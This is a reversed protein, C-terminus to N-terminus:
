TLIFRKAECKGDNLEKLVEGKMIGSVYTEGVVEYDGAERGRLIFPVHSGFLVVVNDGTEAGAPALGMYGKKTIFFRRGLAYKELQFDADREELQPIISPSEGYAQFALERLRATEEKDPSLLSHEWKYRRSEATERLVKKDFQCRSQWYPDPVTSPLSFPRHYLDYPQLSWMDALRQFSVRLEQLEKDSSAMPPLASSLVAEFTSRSAIGALDGSRSKLIEQREALEAQRPNRFTVPPEGIIWDKAVEPLCGEFDDVSHYEQGAVLTDWFAAHQAKVSPYPSTRRCGLAAQKCKGVAVLFVTSSEWSSYLEGIFPEHIWEIEDWLIGEVDVTNKANDVFFNYKSDGGAAYAPRKKKDEDFWSRVVNRQTLIQNSKSVHDATEHMGLNAEPDIYHEDHVGAFVLRKQDVFGQIQDVMERPLYRAWGQPDHSVKGRKLVRQAEKEAFGYSGPIEISLVGEKIGIVQSVAWWPIDGHTKAVHMKHNSAETCHRLVELGKSIKMSAAAFAIYIDGVPKKYDVELGPLIISLPFSVLGLIGYIKDRPDTANFHRYEVVLQLMETADIKGEVLKGFLRKASWRVYDLHLAKEVGAITQRHMSEDVKIRACAMVLLNWQIAVKGCRLIVSDATLMKRMGGGWCIEQVIWVREWWPRSLLGEIAECTRPALEPMAGYPAETALHTLTYIALDSNESESGLWVTIAACRLYVVGMIMVQSNREDIDQQNICLADVWLAVEKDKQRRQRLFSALNPTIKLYTNEHLILMETAAETGWTYSLAEYNMHGNVDLNSIELCCRLPEMPGDAPSLHLLRIEGRTDDWRLPTYQYPQSANALLPQGSNANTPKM